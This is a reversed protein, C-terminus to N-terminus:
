NLTCKRFQIFPGLRSATLHDYLQYEGPRGRGWERSGGDGEGVRGLEGEAVRFDYHFLVSALISQLVSLALSKGICSRPGISFPTFASQGREVADRNREDAHVVWREPYFVYPDPFYATNHHISYIPTGVDCGPPIFHGDIITGDPEIERFLASPVPPAMRMSEDICARLYILKPFLARNRLDAPNRFVARVESTAAKYASPNRALYFFFASLTTSTTDFGAVVLNTSEAAIENTGLGEREDSGKLISYIDKAATAESKAEAKSKLLAKVFSLFTYRALISRPFIFRELYTGKLYWLPMLVGVRINSEHITPLMHRNDPKTLMDSQSDYVVDLTIDFTVFDSLDSMNKPTSWDTSQPEADFCRLFRQVHLDIIGEYSRLAADSFGRSLLRRQKAHMLKDRQTLTNPVRHMMTLYGKCKKVKKGFSYTDKLSEATNFILRDPGYRVYNGLFANLVLDESATRRMGYTQHCRLMDLHLDGRWSHYAAYLNTVKAWFPGPFKALPNFWLRYTCLVVLWLIGFVATTSLILAAIDRIPLSAM